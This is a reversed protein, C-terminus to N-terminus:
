KGRTRKGKKKSSKKLYLYAGIAGLIFLLGLIKTANKGWGTSDEEIYDGSDDMDGAAFTGIPAGLKGGAQHQPLSGLNKTLSSGAVVRLSQIAKLFDQSYKTYLKQHASFTVLIAIKDKVTALYRSYYANVESGTHMGDVWVHNAIRREKVHIVKSPIPQGNPGPISRAGKLYSMYSAINDAPGVEKATLIIMAEKAKKAYKSICLWETGELHCNWNSPLEFSVYSNRFLKAEATTHMVLLLCLISFYHFRRM